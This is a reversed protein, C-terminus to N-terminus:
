VVMIEGIWWGVLGTGDVLGFDWVNEIVGREGGCRSWGWVGSISGKLLKGFGVEGVLGVVGVKIWVM